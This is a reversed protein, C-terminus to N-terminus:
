SFPKLDAVSLRALAKRTLLRRWPSMFWGIIARNLEMLDDNMADLM